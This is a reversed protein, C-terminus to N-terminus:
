IMGSLFISPLRFAAERDAASLEEAGQRFTSWEHDFGAAVDPDINQTIDNM